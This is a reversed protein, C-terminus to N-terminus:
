KVENRRFAYEGREKNSKWEALYEDLTASKIFMWCYKKKSSKDNELEKMSIFNLGKIETLFKMLYYSKCYFLNVGDLSEPNTVFM